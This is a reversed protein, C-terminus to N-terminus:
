RSSFSSIRLFGDSGPPKKKNLGSDCTLDTADSMQFGREGPGIEFQDGSGQHFAYQKIIFAGTTYAQLVAAAAM